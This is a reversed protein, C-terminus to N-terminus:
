CAWSKNTKKNTKKDNNELLDSFVKKAINEQEKELLDMYKKLNKMTMEIGTIREMSLASLIVNIEEITKGRITIEEINIKEFAINEKSDEKKVYFDYM